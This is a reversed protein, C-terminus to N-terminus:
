REKCLRLSNELHQGIEPSSVLQGASINIISAGREVAVTIAHAIAVQSASRGGDRRRFFVPLALGSCGSALGVHEASSGFILSCIETGHPDADDLGEPVMADVVALNARALPASCMDPLGDIVAITIGRDCAGISRIDELM